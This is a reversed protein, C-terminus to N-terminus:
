EAVRKKFWMYRTVMLPNGEVNSVFNFDASFPEWGEDLLKEAEEESETRKMEWKRM